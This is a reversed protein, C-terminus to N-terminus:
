AFLPLNALAQALTEAVARSLWSVALGSDAESLSRIVSLYNNGKERIGASVATAVQESEPCIRDDFFATRLSDTVESARAHLEKKRAVVAGEADDPYVRAYEEISRPMKESLESFRRVREEFVEALRALLAGHLARSLPDNPFLSRVERYWRNLAVLNAMYILNNIVARKVSRYMGAPFIVEVRRPGPDTLLKGGEEVDKRWVCGAAIVTGFAIRCPGVLGGQGGLFVPRERLTVGRPVDGVLSATAKDQQPTFNFHIYSSGVESHDKRSTGGAMLADCFNVLSGLTVFPFLITHKLGAAHACSAQEELITAPRIHCSPGTSAGELLVAGSFSGSGLTVNKGLACGSVVAPGETGIRCGESVLTSAGALRTGPFLEVNAGSVRDPDVDEAIFVSPPDPM